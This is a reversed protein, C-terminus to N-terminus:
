ERDDTPDERPEAQEDDPDGPRRQDVRGEVGPDPRQESDHEERERRQDVHQQVHRPQAEGPPSPEPHDDGRKEVDAVPHGGRGLTLRNGAHPLCSGVSAKGAPGRRATVLWASSDFWVGAGTDHADLMVLLRDLARATAAADLGAVLEQVMRLEFLADRADAAAPGYYIPERVETIEVATFGAATLVGATVTPDALSFAGHGHGAPAMRDAALAQRIATSWEQRHYAQWVLQVLRAGPRLARGINTFAAVPDTFFMTGFRSLGLTFGEPAFPHVQADAREFSVNRIGEEAGLARARDVMPRSVDVGLASGSPASRAADRTTQGTGCGIDLVRDAPGVGAVARLRVNYRSLEADYDFLEIVM